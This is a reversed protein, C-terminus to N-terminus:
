RGVLVNLKALSWDQVEFHLALFILVSEWSMSTFICLQLIALFHYQV